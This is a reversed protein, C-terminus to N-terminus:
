KAIKTKILVLLGLVCFHGSESFQIVLRQTVASILVSQVNDILLHHALLTHSAASILM